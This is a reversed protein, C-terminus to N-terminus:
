IYQFQLAKRQTFNINQSEATSCISQAQQEGVQPGLGKKGMAGLFNPGLPAVSSRNM